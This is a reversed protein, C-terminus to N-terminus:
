HARPGLNAKNLVTMITPHSLYDDFLRLTRARLPPQVPDNYVQNNDNLPADRMTSDETAPFILPKGNENAEEDRLGIPESGPQLAINRGNYASAGTPGHSVIVYAAGTGTIRNFQRSNWGATGNQGDWVDIGKNALFSAPSTCGASGTCPAVPALCIGGAGAAGTAAPDCNSMNMLPITSAALAPDVRYTFRANWPDLSDNGSLGLTVWPVVGHTQIGATCVGAAIAEVGANVNGNLLRGDAPCPLRKNIAVFQAMAVDMADLQKRVASRKQSDLMGGGAKLMMAAAVGVILLVIAMEVLTFGTHPVPSQKRM